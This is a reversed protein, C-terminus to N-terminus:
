FLKSSWFCAKGGWFVLATYLVKAEVCQQHVGRDEQRKLWSGGERSVTQTSKTNQVGWCVAAMCGTCLTGVASTTPQWVVQHETRLKEKVQWAEPTYKTGSVGLLGAALHDELHLSIKSEGTSFLQPSVMFFFIM